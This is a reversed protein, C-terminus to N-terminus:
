YWTWCRNREYVRRIKRYMEPSKGNVPCNFVDMCANHVLVHDLHQYEGMANHTTVSDPPPLKKLLERLEKANAEYRERNQPSKDQWYNSETLELCWIRDKLPHEAMAQQRGHTCHANDIRPGFVIIIRDYEEPAFWLAEDDPHAVVLLKM